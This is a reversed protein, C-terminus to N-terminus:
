EGYELVKDYKLDMLSCSGSCFLAIKLEYEIQDMLDKLATEGILAARMMPSAFGCVKAGLAFCIAADLGSRLGGSAWLETSTEKLISSGIKLSEVTTVGWDQFVESARAFRSNQDSRLGEVRGWHTGGFGSVDIAAVGLDTSKLFAKHSFGTGTEKLLIPIHSSKVLARISELSGKFNRTGEPQIAEQMPNLHIYLTKLNYKECLEILEDPSHSIVQAVGINGVIEVQGSFEKQLSSWEDDGKFSKLSELEKRLSGTSFSWKKQSCVELLRKNVEFSKDHGGTMSSVMLPKSDKLIKSETEITIENFNIDTLPDHILRVEDSPCIGIQSREDLSIKIHDKKRQEFQKPDETRSM